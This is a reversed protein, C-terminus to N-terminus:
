CNYMNRLAVNYWLMIHLLQPLNRVIEVYFVAAKQLAWTSSLRAIGVIFGLITSFIIALITVLLTNTLGVLFVRMYNDGASFPIMSFSIEFGAEQRLFDFGLSLGRQALNARLNGLAVYGIAVLVAVIVLQMLWRRAAVSALVGGQAPALSTPQGSM